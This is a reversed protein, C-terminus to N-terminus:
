FTTMTCDYVPQAPVTTTRDGIIHKSNSGTKKVKQLLGIAKLNEMKSLSLFSAKTPKHVPKPM